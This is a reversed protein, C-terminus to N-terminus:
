ALSRPCLSAAFSKARVRLSSSAASSFSLSNASPPMLSAAAATPAPSFSPYSVMREPTSASSSRHFDQPGPVPGGQTSIFRYRPVETVHIGYGLLHAAAGSSRSGADRRGPIRGSKTRFIKRRSPSIARMVVDNTDVTDSPHHELGAWVPWFPWRWEQMLWTSRRSAAAWHTGSTL